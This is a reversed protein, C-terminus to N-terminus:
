IINKGTNRRRKWKSYPFINLNRIETFEYKKEHIFLLAESHLDDALENNKCVKETIIRYKKNLLEAFSM